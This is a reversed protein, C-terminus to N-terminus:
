KISRGLSGNRPKKKRIQSDIKQKFVSWAEPSPVGVNASLAPLDDFVAPHPRQGRENDRRVSDDSSIIPEIFGIMRLCVSTIDRRTPEPLLLISRLLERVWGPDMDAIECCYEFSDKNM